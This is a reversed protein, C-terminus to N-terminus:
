GKTVQKINLNLDYCNQNKPAVFVKWKTFFNQYTSYRWLTLNNTETNKISVFILKEKHVQFLSMIFMQLVPEYHQRYIKIHKEIYTEKVSVKAKCCLNAFSAM